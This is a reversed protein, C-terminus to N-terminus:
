KKAYAGIVRAVQSGPAKLVGVLRSAPANLLGIIKARSEDLSPMAALSKVGAEDLLKENLAGGLIQLKENEKSFSVVTKAAAVADASYAIATPGKLMGGLPAFKTDNAAIRTLRNKTVKVSVGNQRATKRFNTIEEVTLGRYHIVVASSASALAERMSDVFEKKQARNM